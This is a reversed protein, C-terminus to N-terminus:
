SAGRLISALRHAQEATFAPADAVIRRIHAELRSAKLDRRANILDPDDPTRSRSLSAVRARDATWSM